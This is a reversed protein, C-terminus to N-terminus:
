RQRNSWPDVFPAHARTDRKDRSMQIIARACIAFKRSSWASMMRRGVGTHDRTQAQYTMNSVHRQATTHLVANLNRPHGHTLSVEDGKGALGALALCISQQEARVDCEVVSVVMGGKSRIQKAQIIRTSVVARKDSM